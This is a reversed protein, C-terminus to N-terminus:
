SLLSKHLIYKKVYEFYDEDCESTAKTRQDCLWLDDDIIKMASGLRENETQRSIKKRLCGSLGEGNGCHLKYNNAVGHPVM